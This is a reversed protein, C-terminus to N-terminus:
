NRKGWECKLDEETVGLVGGVGALFSARHECKSQTEGNAAVLTPFNFDIVFVNWDKKFFPKMIKDKNRPHVECICWFIYNPNERITETNAKVKIIEKKALERHLEEWWKQYEPDLSDRRYGCFDIVERDFPEYPRGRYHSQIPQKQGPHDLCALCSLPNPMLCPLRQEARLFGLSSMLVILLIQWYLAGERTTKDARKQGWSLGLRFLLCLSAILWFYARKDWSGDAFLPGLNFESSQMVLLIALLGFFSLQLSKTLTEKWTEENRIQFFPNLLPFGAFGLSGVLVGLLGGQIINSLQKTEPRKTIWPSVLLAAGWILASLVCFMGVYRFYVDFLFYFTLGVGFFFPVGLQLLERINIKKNQISARIMLATLILLSVTLIFCDQTPLFSGVAILAVGFLGFLSGVIPGLVVLGLFAIVVM